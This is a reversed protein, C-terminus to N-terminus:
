QVSHLTVVEAPYSANLKVKVTGITPDAVMVQGSEGIFTGYGVDYRFGQWYSPLVAYLYDGFAFGCVECRAGGYIVGADLANSSGSGEPSPDLTALSCGTGGALCEAPREQLSRREDKGDADEDLLLADLDPPACSAGGSPIWTYSCARARVEPPFTAPFLHDIKWRGGTAALENTQTNVGPLDACARTTRQGDFRTPTCQVTPGPDYVVTPLPGVVWGKPPKPPPPPPPDVIVVPPRSTDIGERKLASQSTSTTDEEHSASAACAALGVVSAVAIFAVRLSRNTM